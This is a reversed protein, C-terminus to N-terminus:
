QQSPAERERVKSVMLPERRPALVGVGVRAPAESGTWVSPRAWRWGGDKRPPSPATAGAKSCGLPGGLAWRQGSSRLPFHFLAMRVASGLFVSGPGSGWSARPLAEGEGLARPPHPEWAWGSGGRGPLLARPARPAGTSDRCCKTSPEGHAAQLGQGGESRLPFFIAHGGWLFIRAARASFM